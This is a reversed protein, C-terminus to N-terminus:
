ITQTPRPEVGVVVLWLVLPVEGIVGLVELYVRMQNALPPSLFTLWGLGAAAVGFLRPV